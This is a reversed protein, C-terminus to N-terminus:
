TVKSTENQNAWALGKVCFYDRGILVKRMNIGILGNDMFCFSKILLSPQIKARPTKLDKQKGDKQKM